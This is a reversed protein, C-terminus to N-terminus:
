SRNVPSFHMPLHMATMGSRTRVRLINNGAFLDGACVIADAKWDKLLRRVADVAFDGLSELMSRALVEKPVGAVRYSMLSRLFRRGDFLYRSGHEIVVTDLKVAGLSPLLARELDAPELGIALSGAGLLWAVSEAEADPQDAYFGALNECQEPFALRYNDLLRPGNDDIAAIADLLDAGRIPLPLFEILRTILGGPDHAAIFSDPQAFSFYAIAAAKGSLDSQALLDLVEVESPPRTAVESM